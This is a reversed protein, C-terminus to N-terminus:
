MVQRVEDLQSFDAGSREQGTDNRGSPPRQWGYVEIGHIDLLEVADTNSNTILQPVLNALAERDGALLGEPGGETGAVTRLVALREEEFHVMGEAVVRDADLLQNNFREQLSNAVLSTVVFAGVGGMALALLLYPVIISAGISSTGLRNVINQRAGAREVPAKRNTM